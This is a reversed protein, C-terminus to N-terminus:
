LLSWPLLTLEFHIEYAFYYMNDVTADVHCFFVDRHRPFIMTSNLSRFPISFERCNHLGEM